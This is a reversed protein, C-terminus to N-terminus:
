DLVITVVYNIGISTLVPAGNIVIENLAPQIIVTPPPKEAVLEGGTVIAFEIVM